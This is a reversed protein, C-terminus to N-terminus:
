FDQSGNRTKSLQGSEFLNLLFDFKFPFNDFFFNGKEGRGFFELVDEFEKRVLWLNGGM